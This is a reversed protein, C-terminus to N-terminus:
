QSQQNPNPHRRVGLVDEFPKDKYLAQVEKERVHGLIAQARTVCQPLAANYCFLNPAFMERLVEEDSARNIMIQLYTSDTWQSFREFRQGSHLFLSM